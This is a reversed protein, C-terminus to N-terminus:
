VGAQRILAITKAKGQYEIGHEEALERLKTWHLDELAVNDVQGFEDIAPTLELTEPDLLRPAPEPKDEVVTTANGQALQDKFAEKLAEKEAAYRRQRAAGTDREASRRPDDAPVHEGHATFYEGGQVYRLHPHGIIDGYPAEKNFEPM